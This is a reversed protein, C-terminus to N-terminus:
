KLHNVIVKLAQSAELCNAFEKKNFFNRIVDRLEHMKSAMAGSYSSQLPHPSRELM